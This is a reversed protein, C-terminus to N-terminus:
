EPVIRVSDFGKIKIGANTQAELVAETDGATLLLATTDIHVVIDLLGDLNVDEQSYMLTGKGKLKISAGALQVSLPDIQTADFTPTSVIAVPVNGNSGLNITNPYIGPKIDIDVKLYTVTQNIWVKNPGSNAIFADLDGDGDLDGLGVDCSSSGGLLQGSDAFNGCSNNLWVRNPRGSACGAFADLDNDGDLDGLAVNLVDVNFLDQSNEVFVGSGDNLWVKHPAYRNIALADLDGDGDLDGLAAGASAYNGLNQIGETFIGGNNFWVKNPEGDPYTGGPPPGM